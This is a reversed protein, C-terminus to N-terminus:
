SEYLKRVDIANQILMDFTRGDYIRKIRNVVEYLPSKM